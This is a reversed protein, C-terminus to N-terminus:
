KSKVVYYNGYNKFLFLKNDFKYLEDEKIVYVSKELPNIKLHKINCYEYKEKYFKGDKKIKGQFYLADIEHYFMTLIESVDYSNEFQVNSTIYIKEVDNKRISILADGFDNFFYTNISKSYATFYTISFVIFMSIYIFIPIWRLKKLYRVIELVGAAIFIILPYFIINLRNVNVNNTCLGCWIGVGFLIILYIAGSNKKYNCFVFYMGMLLVPLSFKYITGFGDIDNWPLDKFQFIVIRILSAFNLLLQFLINKSFFLIDSSRVSDEFYPITFFPTTITEEKLFNIIMTLIFPWSILIYVFFALFADKLTIKKSKILYICTILLFLPVTYISIGYCYMSLGFFIMSVRLFMKNNLGKNLFYLGIILFHPFLNCDLAWRSQMIHWPNIALFFAVLLAINKGYVDKIYLYLCICAVISIILIPLRVVMTSFGFFSIFISMLYSLLSSMQGYGWATLHVPMHMGFRDTGYNSLALGDVAAMAGDQNFGGPVSGFKYVRIFLGIFFIVFLIINYTKSSFLIKEDKIIKKKLINKYLVYVSCIMFFIFFVINVVKM